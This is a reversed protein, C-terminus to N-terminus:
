VLRLTMHVQGRETAMAVYGKREYLRRAEPNQEFVNLSVSHLGRDRAMTAIADLAAGGFGRGQHDSDVSIDWIYLATPDELSPGLWVRGVRAGDHVVWRFDHGPTADRRPLIEALLEKTTALAADLTLGETEALDAAYDGESDALFLRAEKPTMSILSVM